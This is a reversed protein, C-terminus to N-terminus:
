AYKKSLDIQVLFKTRRLDDSLEEPETNLGTGYVSGSTDISISEDM